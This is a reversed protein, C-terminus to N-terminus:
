PNTTTQPIGAAPTSPASLFNVGNVTGNGLVRNYRPETLYVGNYGQMNMNFVGTVTGAKQQAALNYIYYNANGQRGGFREVALAMLGAFAPASASTGIAGYYKGGIAEYVASDGYQCIAGGPCGGMQLSVDPVTRYVPEDLPVASQFSPKKFIVSNGGGSGWYQGTASTGFFIDETLPDAYAWESSYTSDLSGPTYNTFLNTGGVGVVNPSSAPFNATPFANGCSPAGNFCAVPLGELAGSDGSSAIFTMGQATGQAFLADEVRLIYTFDTNAVGEFLLSYPATYYVEGGGFSMSVVDTRNDAIIQALGRMISDDSLDNIVYILITANPAMGGSQQMDLQTEFSDGNIGTYPNGGNVPISTFSPVALKEHGFYMAMDSAQFDADILIGVTAGKGTYTQYSPFKYAQKLDDFWYAGHFSYRNDPLTKAQVHTRMRVSPSLGTVVANVEALASLPVIPKTAVVKTKGNAFQASQLETSFAEEVDRASGTVHIYSGRQVDATLGHGALQRKIAEVQGSSVGFRSNFEVPTLWKHYTASGPTQLDVLLKDLEERHQPPLFIDFGAQQTAAVRGKLTAREVASLNPTMTGMTLATAVLATYKMTTKM